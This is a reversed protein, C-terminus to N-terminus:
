RNHPTTVANSRWDISVSAGLTTSLAVANRMAHDFVEDSAATAVDIRTGANSASGSGSCTVTVSRPTFVGLTLVTAIWNPVTLQTDVTAVGSPCQARVDIPTAPVLGFIWTATWPKAIKTGGAPLGTQVVQHYCGTLLVSSLLV